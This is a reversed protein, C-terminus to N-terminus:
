VPQSVVTGYRSNSRTEGYDTTLGTQVGPENWAVATATGVTAVM